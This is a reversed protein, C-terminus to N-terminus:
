ALWRTTVVKEVSELAGETWGQNRSVAEGVVVINELPQQAMHIFRRRSSYVSKDLPKYYHTGVNWYFSKIAIIDLSGGSIDVAKEVLDRFLVRNRETNEIFPQLEVARLNDSYAIMYVGRDVDMPIIKQLVGKVCTYGQIKERLYPISQKSFKAYVRLFPQGEIERYIPMDPLLQRIGGIDTAIILRSCVYSTGQATELYYQVIPTELMQRRIKVVGNGFRINTEGIKRVLQDVMKKWPVSFARSNTYNDEMGYYYLTEYADEKEYDTYGSTELFRKYITEGLVERAFKKFTISSANEGRAAYKERLLKMANAMNIPEIDKSYYKKSVFEPTNLGLEQALKHLLKDKRLRGIGAGTVVDVGYFPENGARGGVWAKKNKEIILFRIHPHATKLKYAAYLGAMGAGVIIVDYIM